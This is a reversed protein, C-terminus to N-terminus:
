LPVKEILVHYEPYSSVRPIMWNGPIPNLITDVQLIEERSIVIM